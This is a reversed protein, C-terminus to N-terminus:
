CYVITYSITYCLTCLFVFVTLRGFDSIPLSVFLIKLIKHNFIKGVYMKVLIKRGVSVIYLFVIYVFPIYSQHM